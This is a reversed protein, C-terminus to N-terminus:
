VFNTEQIIQVVIVNVGTTSSSNITATTWFLDNLLTFPKGKPDIFKLIFPATILMVHASLLNETFMVYTLIHHHLEMPPRFSSAELHESLKM